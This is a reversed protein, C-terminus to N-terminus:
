FSKETYEKKESLAPANYYKIMKLIKADPEFFLCNKTQEDKWLVAYANPSDECSAAMVTKQADFSQIAALHDEDLPLVHDCNKILVEAIQKRKKGGYIRSVTIKGAFVSYEYEISTYKWTLWVLIWVTIPIFALLPLILKTMAGILLFAIVYFVYLAIFTVKKMKLAPTSKQAVVFEYPTGSGIETNM